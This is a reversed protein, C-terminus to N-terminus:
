DSRPAGPVEYTGAAGTIVQRRFGTASSVVEVRANEITAGSQDTVTGNLSAHDVQAALPLALCVFALVRRYVSPM